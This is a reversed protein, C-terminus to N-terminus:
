PHSQVYYKFFQSPSKLMSILALFWQKMVLMIYKQVLYM